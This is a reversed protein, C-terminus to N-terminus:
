GSGGLSQIFKRNQTRLIHPSFCSSSKLIDAQIRRSLRSRNKQTLEHEWVRLVRWGRARLTRTVLRDRIRNML